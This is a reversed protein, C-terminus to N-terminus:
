AGKCVMDGCMSWGSLLHHLIYHSLTSGAVRTLLVECSQVLVVKTAFLLPAVYAGSGFLGAPLVQSHLLGVCVCRMHQTVM